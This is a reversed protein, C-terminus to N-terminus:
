KTRLAIKTEDVQKIGSVASVTKRTIQTQKESVQVSFFALKTFCAIKNFVTSKTQKFHSTLYVRLHIQKM